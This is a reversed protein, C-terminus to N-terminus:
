SHAHPSWPCSVVLATADMDNLTVTSVYAYGTSSLTYAADYCITLQAAFELVNPANPVNIEM